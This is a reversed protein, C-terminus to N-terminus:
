AATAKWTGEDVPSGDGVSKTKYSGEITKDTFTGSVTSELRADGLDFEYVVVLKSGDVKVSTVKCQVPQGAITFSVDAKTAGDDGAHLTLTLEGDAQGGTWTGKYTGSLDAATAGAILILALFTFAFLRM